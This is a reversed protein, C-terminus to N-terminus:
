PLIESFWLYLSSGLLRPFPFPSKLLLAILCSVDFSRSGSTNGKQQQTVVAALGAALGVGVQDRVAEM